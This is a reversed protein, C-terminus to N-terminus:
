EEVVKLLFVFAGDSCARTPSEAAPVELRDLIGERVRRTGLDLTQHRLEIEEIAFPQGAAQTVAAKIKM